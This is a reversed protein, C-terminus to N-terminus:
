GDLGSAMKEILDCLRGSVVQLRYKLLEPSETESHKLSYDCIFDIVGSIDLPLQEVGVEFAAALDEALARDIMVTRRSLALRTVASVLWRITSDLPNPKPLQSAVPIAFTPIIIRLFPMNNTM